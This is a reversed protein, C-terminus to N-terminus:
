VMSFHTMNDHALEHITQVFYHHMKSQKVFWLGMYDNRQVFYAHSAVVRYICSAWFCAGGGGIVINSCHIWTILHPM